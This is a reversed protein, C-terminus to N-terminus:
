FNNPNLPVVYPKDGNIFQQAEKKQEMKRKTREIRRLQQKEGRTLKRRPKQVEKGTNLKDNIPTVKIIKISDTNNSIEGTKILPVTDKTFYIAEPSQNNVSNEIRISDLGAPTNIFVLQKTESPTTKNKRNIKITAPASSIFESYKIESTNKQIQNSQSDPTTIITKQEANTISDEQVHKWFKIFLWTAAMFGAIFYVIPKRYNFEKRILKNRIKVKEPVPESVFAEQWASFEAKLHPNAKIHRDLEKMEEASLNGEVYDFMLLEINENNVQRM